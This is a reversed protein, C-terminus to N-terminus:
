EKSLPKVKKTRCVLFIILTLTYMALDIPCFTGPFVDLGQLIEHLPGVAIASVFLCKGVKSLSSLPYSPQMSLLAGYWLADPLSGIIWKSPIYDLSLPIIEKLLNGFVLGKPRWIIYILLGLVLLFGALTM